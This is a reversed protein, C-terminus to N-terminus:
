ATAVADIAIVAMAQVLREDEGVAPALRWHVGPHDSRLRALLAPVDQRVHGGAGLFLPLVTVERCGARVLQEGAGPLDPRMFDLYALAVQWQPRAQRVSAAVREFPRAWAPDRAGHALLILGPPPGGSSGAPPEMSHDMLRM